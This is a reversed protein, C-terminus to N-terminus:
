VGRGKAKEFRLLRGNRNIHEVHVPTIVGHRVRRSGGGGGGVKRHNGADRRPLVIRRQDYLLWVEPRERDGEVDREREDEHQRRLHDAVATACTMQLAETQVWAFSPRSDLVIWLDDGPERLGAQGRVERSPSLSTPQMQAVFLHTGGFCSLLRVLQLTCRPMFLWWWLGRFVGLFFLLVFRFPRTQRDVGSPVGDAVVACRDRFEVFEHKLAVTQGVHGQRRGQWAFIWGRARVGGLFAQQRRQVV